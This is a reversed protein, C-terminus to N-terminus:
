IFLKSIRGTFLLLVFGWSVIRERDHTSVMVFGSSGISEMSKWQRSPCEGVNKFVAGLHVPARVEVCRWCLWGVKGRESLGNNYHEFPHKKTSISLVSSSGGLFFM